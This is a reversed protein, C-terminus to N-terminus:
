SGKQKHGPEGSPPAARAASKHGTRQKCAGNHDLRPPKRNQSHPRRSPLAQAGLLRATVLRSLPRPMREGPATLRM